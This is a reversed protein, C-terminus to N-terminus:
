VTSNCWQLATTLLVEATQLVSRVEVYEDVNHAGAGRPGFVLTPIGFERQNIFADCPYEAATLAPATGLAATACSFLSKTWDHDVPLEHGLLPPDVIAKWEPRYISFFPDEQCFSRFSKQVECIVAAVDEHPLFQFYLRVRANLPVSWPINDDFRNAELALVQVPAPDSFSRYAEGRELKRRMVSWSDIWGLLRGMPIAPSIVVDKSFYSQPNGARVKIDCFYGGRSARFISLDTPEPIVCANAIDGRLRAALTGGGGAWEEDILSECFLDGGLRMGAKKLAILTAFGAVLGGKMDYTGRGYMRGRRIVGSWPSDRWSEPGSPVTDMHGSILLSRGGGSGSLRAILNHRGAYHRERRVYPHNSRNLFSLDYMEVDLDYGKLFEQLVRQAETECGDPPIAVTNIQVLRQLLQVIQNKLPRLMRRAARASSLPSSSDARSLVHGPDASESKVVM